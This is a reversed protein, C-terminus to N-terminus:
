NMQQNVVLEDNAEDGWATIIIYGRYNKIMVIPDLDVQGTATLENTQNGLRSNDRDFANNTFLSKVAAIEINAIWSNDDEGRWRTMDKLSSRNGDFYVNTIKKHINDLAKQVENLPIKKSFDIGLDHKIQSEIETRRERALRELTPYDLDKVTIDNYFTLNQILTNDLGKQLKQLQKLNKTMATEILWNPFYVLDELSVKFDMMDKINKEPIDGAFFELGRVFLNYKECVRELQEKLIFKYMGHYRLNFEKRYDESEVIAKYMKTAKSNTFGISSLFSSKQSFDSINHEKQLLSNEMELEKHVEKFTFTKHELTEM